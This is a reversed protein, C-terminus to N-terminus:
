RVEPNFCNLNAIVRFVLITTSTSFPLPIKKVMLQSFVEENESLYHLLPVTVVSSFSLTLHRASPFSCSKSEATILNKFNSDDSLLEVVRFAERAVIHMPVRESYKVADVVGSCILSTLCLTWGIRVTRVPLLKRSWVLCRVHRQM